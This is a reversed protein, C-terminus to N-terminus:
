AVLIPTLDPKMQVLEGQQMYLGPGLIYTGDGYISIEPSIELTGPNGGGHFTRMIVDNPGTSYSIPGNNTPLSHHKSSSSPAGAPSTCATLQLSLLCAMIFLWCAGKEYVRRDNCGRHVKKAYM